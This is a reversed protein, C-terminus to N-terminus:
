AQLLLERIRPADSVSLVRKGRLHRKRKTKKKSLIHRRNKAAYRVKGTKSVKFRKKAGRHSKMKPM